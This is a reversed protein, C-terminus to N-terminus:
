DSQPQQGTAHKARSGPAVLRVLDFELLGIANSQVNLTGQPDSEGFKTQRKYYYLCGLGFLVNICVCMLASGRPVVM